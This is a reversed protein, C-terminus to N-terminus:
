PQALTDAQGDPAVLNAHRRRQRYLYLEVLLWLFVLTYELAVLALDETYASTRYTAYSLLILGSWTVAYRFHSMATLALLTTIYWPHVTTALFFYLTLAAAMYGSLRRVSGLKRVSAMAVIGGLTALSLLPGLLHIVNYGAFRFGLWRLLYYVSANFEFRQFYLDLSQFFNRLVAVSVLPYFLAIVTLLVVGGFLLFKQLGLKRLLFPLFMLPLLKTGIALGMALGSVALRQQYFLQHLSLLLFFIMLGEFHLNGVLELIVLPNLAYLLVNKDPLGMKRMLRLLLLVSGAEALLLVVRMVIINALLNGPFLKVALWFIGQAVPPYVSYYEASNLQLYLEGTIGAVPAMGAEMYASPTYQYPNLGAHLLSGDWVFRFYDDSLAPIAALFLLRFFLAAAIGHWLPLRSNILYLYCAFVLAYLALLQTFDARPTSYALAAYALASVAMVGYNVTNSKEM